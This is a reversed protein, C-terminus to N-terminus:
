KGLDLLMKVFRNPYKRRPTIAYFAERLGPVTFVEVLTRSKLEDAVVVRPVLALADSERAVLRLMAMDEVEAVVNTRIGARELMADFAGRLNNDATPLVIRMGELDQPFRFKRRWKRPGPAVLCVDQEDILQSFWSSRENRQATQDTLILEIEHKELKNLLEHISGSVVM